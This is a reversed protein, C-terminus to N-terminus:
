TRPERPITDSARDDCVGGSLTRDPPHLLPSKEMSVRNLRVGNRMVWEEGLAAWGRRELFSRLMLSAHATMVSGPGVAAEFGDYLAGALGSRREEPLVFFFDIHPAFEPSGLGLATLFGRPAGGRRALWTRGGAFRQAFWHPETEQPVWARRQAETYHPSAGERVARAFIHWCAGRDSASAGHDALARIELPQIELTQIELTQIEVTM